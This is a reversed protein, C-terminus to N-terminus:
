VEIAERSKRRRRIVILAILGLVLVGVVIVAIMV